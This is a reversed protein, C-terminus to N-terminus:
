GKHYNEVSVIKVMKGEEVQEIEVVLRWTDNLRMSHQHSRAGRLKEFHLSKMSYFDREDKAAAIFQIRKRFVRAIERSFGGSFSSDKEIRELDRDLHTHKMAGGERM